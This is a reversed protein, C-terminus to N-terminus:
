GNEEKWRQRWVVEDTCVSNIDELDVPLVPSAFHPKCTKNHLKGLNEKTQRSKSYMVNIQRKHEIM